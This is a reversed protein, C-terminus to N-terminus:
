QQEQIIQGCRATLDLWASTMTPQESEGQTARVATVMNVVASAFQNALQQINTNSVDYIDTEFNTEINAFAPYDPYISGCQRWTENTNACDIQFAYVGEAAQYLAKGDAQLQSVAQIMRQASQEANQAQQAAVAQQAAADAQYHAVFFSIGGSLVVCVIGTILANSTFAQRWKSRSPSASGPLIKKRKGWSPPYTWHVM